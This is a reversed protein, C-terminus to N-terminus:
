VGSLEVVMDLGCLKGGDSLIMSLGVNVLARVERSSRHM